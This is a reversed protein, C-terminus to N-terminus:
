EKVGGVIYGGMNFIIVQGYELRVYMYKKDFYIRKIDKGFMDKAMDILEKKNVSIVGSFICGKGM